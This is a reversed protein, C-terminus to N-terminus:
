LAHNDARQQHLAAVAPADLDRQALALAFRSGAEVLDTLEGAAQNGCPLLFTRSDGAIKV